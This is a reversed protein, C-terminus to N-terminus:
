DITSKDFLFYFLFLNFYIIDGLFLISITFNHYMFTIIFLYIVEKLITRFIREM